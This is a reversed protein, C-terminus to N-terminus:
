IRGSGRRGEERRPESGDRDHRSDGDGRRGGRPGMDHLKERQSPTLVSRAEFMAAVQSKRLEARMRAIRDIQSNIARMDPTDDRMLKRLDLGATELDARAQIANRRQRDHIDRIRERQQSTLDLEELRGRLGGGMGHMRHGMRGHGRGHDHMMGMSDGGDGHMDDDMVDVDDGGGPALEAEWASDDTPPPAAKPEAWVPSTAVLLASGVTALVFRKM